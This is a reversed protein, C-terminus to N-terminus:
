GGVLPAIMLVDGEPVVPEFARLPRSVPDITVAAYGKSLLDDFVRKAEARKETETDTWEAVVSDGHRSAMRLRYTTAM